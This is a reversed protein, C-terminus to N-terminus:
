CIASNYISSRQVMNYVLVFRLYKRDNKDLDKILKSLAALIRDRRQRRETWTGLREMGAQLKDLVPGKFPMNKTMTSQVREIEDGYRQAVNHMDSVSWQFCKSNKNLTVYKYMSSNRVYDQHNNLSKLCALLSRVNSYAPGSFANM